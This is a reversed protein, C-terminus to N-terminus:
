LDSRSRFSITELYYLVISFLSIFSAMSLSARGSLGLVGSVWVSIEIENKIEKTFPCCYYHM